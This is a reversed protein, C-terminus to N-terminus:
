PRRRPSLFDRGAQLEAPTPRAQSKPHKAKYKRRDTQKPIDNESPAPRPREENKAPM